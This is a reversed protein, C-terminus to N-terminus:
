YSHFLLRTFLNNSITNYYVEHKVQPTISSVIVGVLGACQSASFRSLSVGVGVKGGIAIAAALPDGSRAVELGYKLAAESAKKAAGLIHKKGENLKQINTECTKGEIHCDTKQIKFFLSNKGENRVMCLGKRIVSPSAQNIRIINEKRLVLNDQEHEPDLSM